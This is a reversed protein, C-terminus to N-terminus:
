LFRKTGRAGDHVFGEARRHEEDLLPDLRNMLEATAQQLTARHTAEHEPDFPRFGEPLLAAPLRFPAGFRITIDGGRLLPSQGRFARRCGSLGAPVIPLNLAWALQVAGIRGQGLRSSVTGEPYMQVHYGADVASRCLRLTEAMVAAYVRRHLDRFCDAGPVFRHGLLLRPSGELRNELARDPLPAGEDIHRRLARYEDDTPRRKMVNTFDVLLLYGRSALPVVGLRKLLFGMVPHHYNKGKTVTVVRLGHEKLETRIPLFDFKQTSNTAILAPSSPLADLNEFTIHTRSAHQMATFVRAAGQEWAPAPLVPYTAFFTRDLM